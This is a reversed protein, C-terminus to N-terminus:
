GGNTETQTQSQEPDLVVVGQDVLLSLEDIYDMFDRSTINPEGIEAEIQSTKTPVAVISIGLQTASLLYRYQEATVAFYIYAPVRNEELNEFVPLADATEVELVKINEIFKGVMVKNSAYHKTKIYLDITGDPVIKKGYSTQMNVSLQYLVKGDPVQYVEYDALKSEEIVAETYFMSGAPVITNINSYKGIIEDANLLVGEGMTELAASAVEIYGIMDDTIKTRPQITDVAYPVLVPKVASKVRWNYGFYIVGIGLIACIIAVTNKNSLFKKIKLSTSNM